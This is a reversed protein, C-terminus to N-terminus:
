FYHFIKHQGTLTITHIKKHLMIVESITQILKTYTLEAIYSALKMNLKKQNSSKDLLLM